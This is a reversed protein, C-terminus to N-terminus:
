ESSNLAKGMVQKIRLRSQESLKVSEPLLAGGSKGAKRMIVRLKKMDRIYRRCLDCIAIHMALGLRERWTLKVDMAKSALLSVEKCTLM